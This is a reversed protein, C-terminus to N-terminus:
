WQQKTPHIWQQATPVIWSIWLLRWEAHGNSCFASHWSTSGKYHINKKIYRLSVMYLICICIFRNHAGYRMGIGVRRRVQFNDDENIECNRSKKAWSFIFRCPESLPRNDLLCCAMLYHAEQWIHLIAPACAGSIGPVNDGGGRTLSGSMCWPVHTVCTGHHMGPDSALPKRQLQRPPFRERCERRM